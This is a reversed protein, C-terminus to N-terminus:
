TDNRVRGGNCHENYWPRGIKALSVVKDAEVGKELLANASKRLSIGAGFAHARIYEALDGDIEIRM